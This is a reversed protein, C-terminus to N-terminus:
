VAGDRGAVAPGCFFLCPLILERGTQKISENCILSIEPKPPSGAPNTQQFEPKM